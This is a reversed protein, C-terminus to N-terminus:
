AADSPHDRPDLKGALINKIEIPLVTALETLTALSLPQEFAKIIEDAKPALDPYRSALDRLKSILLPAAVGAKVLLDLLTM